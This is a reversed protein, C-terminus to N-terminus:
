VQVVGKNFRPTPAQCDDDEVHFYISPNGKTGKMKPLDANLAIHFPKGNRLASWEDVLSSKIWILFINRRQKWIGKVLTLWLTVNKM